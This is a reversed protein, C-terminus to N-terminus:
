VSFLSVNNIQTELIRRVDVNFIFVSLEESVETIVFSM